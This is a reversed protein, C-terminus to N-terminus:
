RELLLRQVVRRDNQQLDLLYLGDAQGSLDLTLRETGRAVNREAVVRGLADTVRLVALGDGLAPLTVLVAGTTPNPALGIVAAEDLEPVSVTAPVLGPLTEGCTGLWQRLL